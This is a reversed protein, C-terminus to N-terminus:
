RRRRGTAFPRPQAAEDVARDLHVLVAVHALAGHNVRLGDLALLAFFLPELAHLHVEGVHGLALRALRGDGRVLPDVRRLRLLGDELAVHVDGGLVAHVELRVLQDVPAVVVGDLAIGRDFELPLVEGPGRESEGVVPPRAAQLQELVDLELDLVLVIRRGQDPGRSRLRGLFLSQQLEQTPDLDSLAVVPELRVAQDHVERLLVPDDM